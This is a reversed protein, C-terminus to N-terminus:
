KLPVEQFPMGNLIVNTLYAHFLEACPSLQCPELRQSHTSRKAGLRGAARLRSFHLGRHLLSFCVLQESSRSNKPRFASLFKQWPEPLCTDNIQKKWLRPLSCPSLLPGPICVGLGPLQSPFGCFLSVFRIRGRRLLSSLNRVM